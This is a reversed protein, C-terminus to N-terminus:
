PQAEKAAQMLIDIADNWGARYNQWGDEHKQSMREPIEVPVFREVTRNEYDAQAAAKAEEVSDFYPPDLIWGEFSLYYREDKYQKIEYDGAFHRDKCDIWELRPKTDIYLTM